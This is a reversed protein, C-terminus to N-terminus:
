GSPWRTAHGVERAQEDIDDADGICEGEVSM